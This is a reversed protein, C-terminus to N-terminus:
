GGSFATVDFSESEALVAQLGSLLESANSADRYNIINPQNLAHRGDICFGITHIAIPSQQSILDVQEKMVGADGADGDTVVVLNYEGYGQQRRAQETLKQAGHRIAAGLPTGNGAIIRNVIEQLKTPEHPAIPAREANKTSDFVYLGSNADAPISLLFDNIVRKATEIRTRGGGCSRDEMSGSGDIVLYYTKATLDNAIHDAQEINEPWSQDAGRQGYLHEEAGSRAAAADTHSTASKNNNDCGALLLSISIVKLLNIARM